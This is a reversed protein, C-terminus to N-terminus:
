DRRPLHARMHPFSYLCCLPRSVQPATRRSTEEGAGSILYYCKCRLLCLSIRCCQLQGWPWKVSGSIPGSWGVAEWCPSPRCETETNQHRNSTLLPELNLTQIILKLPNNIQFSSPALKASVIHCIIERNDITRLAFSQHLHLYCTYKKRELWVKFLNHKVPTEEVKPM